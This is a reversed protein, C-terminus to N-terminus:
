GKSKKELSQSLEKLKTTQREVESCILTVQEQATSAQASILTIMTTVIDQEMQMSALTGRQDALVKGFVSLQNRWDEAESSWNSAEALSEESFSSLRSLMALYWETRKHLQIVTQSAETPDISVKGGSAGGRSTIASASDALTNMAFSQPGLITSDPTPRKIKPAYSREIIDTVSLAPLEGAPPGDLLWRRLLAVQVIRFKEVRQSLQVNQRDLEGRSKLLGTSLKDVAQRQAAVQTAMKAQEANVSNIENSDATAKQQLGLLLTAELKVRLQMQGLRISAYHLKEAESKLMEASEEALRREALRGSKDAATLLDSVTQTAGKLLTESNDLALTLAAFREDVQAKDLLLKKCQEVGRAGQTELMSNTSKIGTLKGEMEAIRRAQADAGTEVMTLVESAREISTRAEAILKLGEIYSERLGTTVPANEAALGVISFLGSLVVLGFNKFNM